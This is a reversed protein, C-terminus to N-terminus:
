AASGIREQWRDDRRRHPKTRREHAFRQPDERRRRDSRDRAHVFGLAAAADLDNAARIRPIGDGDFSIDVPASLGQIRATQNSRPLTLWLVGGLLAAVFLLIIGLISLLRAIGRLLSRM